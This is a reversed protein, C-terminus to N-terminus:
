QIVNNIDEDKVRKRTAWDLRRAKSWFNYKGRYIGTSSIEVAKRAIMKVYGIVRSFTAIDDSGCRPCVQINAGDEAVFMTKCAMCSTMTPTLTLYIIPKEFINRIYQALRKPEVKSELFHHLISGSTYYSQFEAANEIQDAFNDESFPVMCGSTLYVNEGKGQVFIEKGVKNAFKIDHRALKIGANEAPSSEIGCAVKDREIFSDVVNRMHQMLEHALQKGSPNNLGDKYGINILGEHMGVVGFVNFYNKLSTNFAFFTPYLDKHGEIWRRKAMHGEQMLNLYHSMKEKLLELDHGYEILLRNMNLDIVQIAGVNGVSSGFIGGSSLGKLTSLSIQLRCCLSRSVSPDRAQLYPNLNKYYENEFPATRFNEFYCGGWNYMKDLLYLFTTNEFNFNDDIQISILPFTFPIGMKTGQAMVDIFAKNIRDFYDSEIESYTYNQIEGGIIVYEDKIEESAKGFELTCNSFASESGSRLPMNLEWVLSQMEEKLEDESWRRGIVTEEYHLYSALVTTMQALMIAGSVQQSMLVVVNSFHRFLKRLRKTPASPTMNWAITPVGLGAIDKCSISQCYSSLQKDHIYTIGNEYSEVLESPFVHNMLYEEEAKNAINKRLLPLSYVFNSNERKLYDTRKDDDDGLFKEILEDTTQFM